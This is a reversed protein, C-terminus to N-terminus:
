KSWGRGIGISAVMLGAAVILFTLSAKWLRTKKIRATENREFAFAKAAVLKGLLEYRTEYRLEILRTPVPADQFNYPRLCLFGTVLAGAAAAASVLALLLNKDRLTAAWTGATLLFGLLVTVKTDIRDVSTIQRGMRASIEDNILELSDEPVERSASAAPM